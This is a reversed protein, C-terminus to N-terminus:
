KGEPIYVQYGTVKSLMNALGEPNDKYKVVIKEVQKHREAELEVLADNYKKLVDALEAQLKKANQEQKVELESLADQAKKMQEDHSKQMAQIIAVDAVSKRHFYYIGITLSSVTLVVKWNHQLFNLISSIIPPM